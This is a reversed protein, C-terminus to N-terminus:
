LCNAAVYALTAPRIGELRQLQGFSSPKVRDIRQRCEFSINEDDLLKRVDIAKRELKM